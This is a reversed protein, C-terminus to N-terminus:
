SKPNPNLPRICPTICPKICLFGQSVRTEEYRRDVEQRSGTYLSLCKSGVITHQGYMRYFSQVGWPPPPTTSPGVGGMDSLSWLWVERLWPGTDHSMKHSRFGCGNIIFPRNTQYRYVSTAGNNSRCKQLEEYQQMRRKKDRTAAPHMEQRRKRVICHQKWLVSTCFANLSVATFM